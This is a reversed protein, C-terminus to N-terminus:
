LAASEVWKETNGPTFTVSAAEVDTETQQTCQTKEKMSSSPIQDSLIEM